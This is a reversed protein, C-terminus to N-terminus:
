SVASVACRITSRGPVYYQYLTKRPELRMGPAAQDERKLSKWRVTSRASLPRDITRHPPKSAPAAVDEAGTGDEEGGDQGSAGDGESGLAVTVLDPKPVQEKSIKENRELLASLNRGLNGIALLHQKAM